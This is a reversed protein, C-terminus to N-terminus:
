IEDVESEHIFCTDEKWVFMLTLGCCYRFGLKKPSNNVM